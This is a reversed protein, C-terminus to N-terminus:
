VSVYATRIDSEFPNRSQARPTFNDNTIQLGQIKDTEFMRWNPLDGPKSSSGGTQWCLIIENGKSSVGFVHPDVVRTRGQYNFQLKRRERIAQTIIVNFM